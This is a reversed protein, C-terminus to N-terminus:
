YKGHNLEMKMMIQIFFNRIQDKSNKLVIIPDGDVIAEGQKADEKETPIIIKKYSIAGAKLAARLKAGDKLRQAM